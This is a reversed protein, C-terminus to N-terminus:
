LCIQGLFSIPDILGGRVKVQQATSRKDNRQVEILPEDFKDVCKEEGEGIKEGM